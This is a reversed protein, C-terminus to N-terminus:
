CFPFYILLILALNFVIFFCLSQNFSSISFWYFKAFYDLPFFWFEFSYPNFQFFYYVVFQLELVLNFIVLVKIIPGLIVIFLLFCFSQFHCIYLFSSLHASEKSSLSFFSSSFLFSRWCSILWLINVRAAEYSSSLLADLSIASPCTQDGSSDARV